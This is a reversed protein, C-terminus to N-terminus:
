KAHIVKLISSSLTKADVWIQGKEDVEWAEDYNRYDGWSNRVLYQCSNDMAKRQGIVLVSHNSCSGNMAPLSRKFSKEKETLVEACIDVIVPLNNGSELSTSINQIAHPNVEDVQFRKKFEDDTENYGVDSPSYDHYELEPLSLEIKNNECIKDFIAQERLYFGKKTVAIALTEDNVIDFFGEKVGRLRLEEKVSNIKEEVTKNSYFEYVFPEWFTNPDKIGISTLFNQDCSYGQRLQNFLINIQGVGLGSRGAGRSINSLLNVRSGNARTPSLKTQLASTIPSTIHGKAKLDNQIVADIFQSGAFAYCMQSDKQKGYMQDHIPLNKFPANEGQDLRIDQCDNAFISTSLLILITIFLKQSKFM